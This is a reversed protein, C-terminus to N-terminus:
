SRIRCELAKRRSAPLVWTKTKGRSWWRVRRVWARSTAWTAVATARALPSLTAQGFGNGETVVAAVARPAMGTFFGEGGVQGVAVVVGNPAGVHHQGGEVQASSVRSPTRWWLQDSGLGAM